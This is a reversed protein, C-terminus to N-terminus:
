SKTHTHTHTHTDLAIDEGVRAGAKKKMADVQQLFWNIEETDWLIFQRKKTM